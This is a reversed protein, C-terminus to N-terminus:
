DSCVVRLSKLQLRQFIQSQSNLKKYSHMQTSILSVSKTNSLPTKNPLSFSLTTLNNTNSQVNISTGIQKCILQCICIGFEYLGGCEEIIDNKYSFPIHPKEFINQFSSAVIESGSNEVSFIIEKENLVM